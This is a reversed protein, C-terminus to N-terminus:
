DDTGGNETDTELATVAPLSEATLMRLAAGGGTSVHTFGEVGLRRLAAATDGGGVISTPVATAAEYLERTGREFLDDEFVGAPGNLIVTGADSLIRQYYTLTSDGVDMAAETEQPPLANVGIEKRSGDREVAVDRPLAIRDGYADLLDTARDIEDWYGQDYIFDSSADGLDVGDAILFVNGVVGATLVHDALGKELVSWAVDISDSVKAGGIVYVRPEPTEEISGLVDLEAEMVRGAYGPLVTPFGVLSPQSRHAAAFADNVYADLVPALGEVLHTRAAREPDFEMYEESYFRTNELVLCEGNELSRVAERAAETFTADVYDVPRDLLEALRDAHSELSVFEDGGPRGQHALVAVRGGRELLESLTDVHARLRADDALSGDDIPSNVDVRVGITTGEVDLDDLTDIM